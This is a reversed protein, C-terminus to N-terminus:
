APAQAGATASTAQGARDADLKVHRAALLSVAPHHTWVARAGGPADLAAVVTAAGDGVALCLRQGSGADPSVPPPDRRTVSVGTLEVDTAGTTVLQVTVGRAAAARLDAALLTAEAPDLAAEITREANRVVGRVAEVTNQAGVVSWTLQADTDIAVTALTQAVRGLAESMRDNFRSLLDRYPLPAYRVPDSEYVMVAGKGRLRELTEYVKSAPVGAQKSIEHGNMPSRQLLAHYVRVEYPSFGLLGMDHVLGDVSM